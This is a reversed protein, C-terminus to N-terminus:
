RGTYRLRLETLKGSIDMPAPAYAFGLASARTSLGTWEGSATDAISGDERLEVHPIEIAPEKAGSDLSCAWLGGTTGWTEDASGFGYRQPEPDLSTSSPYDVSYYLVDDYVFQAQGGMVLTYDDDRLDFTRVPPGGYEPWNNNISSWPLADYPYVQVRGYDPRGFTTGVTVLSAGGDCTGVFVASSEGSDLGSREFPYLGDPGAEVTDLREFADTTNISRYLRGDPGVESTGGWAPALSHGPAWLGQKDQMVGALDFGLWSYQAGTPERQGWSIWHLDTLSDYVGGMEWEEPLFTQGTAPVQWLQISATTLTSGLAMGVIVPTDAVTSAKTRSFVRGDSLAMMCGFPLYGGGSDEPHGTNWATVFRFTGDYLDHVGAIEGGSYAWYLRGDLLM